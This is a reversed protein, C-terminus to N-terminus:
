SHAFIYREEDTGANCKQPHGNGKAPKLRVLRSVFIRSRRLTIQYTYKRKEEMDDSLCSMSKSTKKSPFTPLIRSEGTSRILDPAIIRCEV